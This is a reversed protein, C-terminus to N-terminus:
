YAAALFAQAEEITIGERLWVTYPCGQTEFVAAVQGVGEDGVLMIRIEGVSGTATASVTSADLLGFVDQGAKQGVEVDPAAPRPQVPLCPQVDRANIRRVIGPPFMAALDADLSGQRPFRVATVVGDAMRVVAPLASGTSASGGGHDECQLWVYSRSGDHGLVDVGCRFEGRVRLGGLMETRVADNTQLQERLSPPDDHGTSAGTPHSACGALLGLLVISRV